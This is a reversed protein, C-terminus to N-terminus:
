PSRKNLSINQYCQQQQQTLVLRNQFITDYTQANTEGEANLVARNNTGLFIQGSQLGGLKVFTSCHSTNDRAVLRMM